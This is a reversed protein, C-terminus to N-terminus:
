KSALKGTLSSLRIRRETLKTSVFRVLMVAILAFGWFFDRLFNIYSISIMNIGTSLFQLMLTAIIIGSLKGSGGAPDVGGLVSVLVAQLTYTTGYDAKAQNTRSIILFGALAAFVGSLVYSMVTVATNNVGSFMSARPNTGMMYLKLGFTTRQMIFYAAIAVVIFILLPIPIIGFLSGNGIVDGVFAPFGLVAKGETVVIAVGMFLQMTGLTAIIPPIGIRSILLGNISGSLAGLAIAILVAVIVLSIQTGMDAGQPINKVIFLASVVGAVNAVGVMSLDIGGSVMSLMMGIAIIGIEPFQFAMSELNDLSYYHRSTLGMGLYLVIMFLFLGVLYGDLGRVAKLLPNKQIKDSM